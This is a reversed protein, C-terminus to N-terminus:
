CVPKPNVGMSELAETYEDYASEIAGTAAELAREWCAEDDGCEGELLERARAMQADLDDGMGRFLAATQPDANGVFFGTLQTKSQEAALTRGVFGGLREVTDDLDRLYAQIAPVDGPDHSDLKGAVTEYHSREEAATEDFADAVTGTEADAWADYTEAARHEATAAAALVTETEMEGGTDAYLSKSSGLRSLATQNEDRVADLFEDANM